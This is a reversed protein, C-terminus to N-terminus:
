EEYDEEDDDGSELTGELFFVTDLKINKAVEVVEDLTVESFAKMYKEPSANIGLMSRTNYFAFMEFPYDYIQRYWHLISKKAALFEDESINGAKIADLQRLIETKAREFECVNIGSSVTINGLYPDYSSACYYCLSLRERVNMFLKSAPSGGFIENLLSAAFYKKDDATVGVRFGLCLKGQSVEFPETREKLSTFKEAVIPRLPSPVGHFDKFYKSITASVHAIDQSGVYFIDLASFNIMEKYHRYLSVEDANEVSSLLSDVTSFDVDDSHMLEACKLSAYARPNNIEAKIADCVTNKEKNVVDKRFAGNETLPHMLVQSILHTVGDLIDTGDSVFSNDLMEASIIFLQNKGCKANKIEISSAYLEDLRRNLLAASPFDESGRRLVGSLLMSYASTERSLPLRLSFSIMGTKFKDTIISTLSVSDWLKTKIPTM